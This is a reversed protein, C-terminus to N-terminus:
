TIPVVLWAAIQSKHPAGPRLWIVHPGSAEQLPGIKWSDGRALSHAIVGVLVGSFWAATIPFRDHVSASNPAAAASEFVSARAPTAKSRPVAAPITVSDPRATVRPGSSKRPAPPQEQWIPAAQPRPGPQLPSNRPTGPAPSPLPASQLAAPQKHSPQSKDPLEEIDPSSGHPPPPATSIQRSGYFTMTPVHAPNGDPEADESFLRSIPDTPLPPQRM